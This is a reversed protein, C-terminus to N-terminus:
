DAIFTDVTPVHTQLDEYGLRDQSVKEAIGTTAIATDEEYGKCSFIEGSTAPGNSKNPNQFSSQAVLHHSLHQFCAKLNPNM